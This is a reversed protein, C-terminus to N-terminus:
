SECKEKVQIRDPTEPTQKLSAAIEETLDAYQEQVPAFRFSYAFWYPLHDGINLEGCDCDCSRIPLPNPFPKEKMSVQWKGCKKCQCLGIVTYKLGKEYITSSSVCIVEQGVFFPPGTEEKM